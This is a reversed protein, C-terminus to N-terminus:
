LDKLIEDTIPQVLEAVADISIMFDIDKIIHDLEKIKAKIATDLIEPDNGNDLLERININVKTDDILNVSIAQLLHIPINEKDIERLIHKWHDRISVNIKKVKLRPKKRQPSQNTM